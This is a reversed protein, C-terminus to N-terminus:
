EEEAKKGVFLCCDDGMAECKVEHVEIKKGTLATFVGAIVGCLFHCYPETTKKGSQKIIASEFCNRMEVVVEGTSADSYLIRSEGFWGAHMGYGLVKSCQEEVSTGKVKSLKSVDFGSKMMVGLKSGIGAKAMRNFMNGIDEGARFGFDHLVRKQMAPGLTKGLAEKVDNFVVYNILLVRRGHFAMVGDDSPMIPTLKPTLGYFADRVEELYKIKEENFQKIEEM